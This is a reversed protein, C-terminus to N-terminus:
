KMVIMHDRTIKKKANKELYKAQEEKDMTLPIFGNMNEKTMLYLKDTSKQCELFILANGYATPFWPEGTNEVTANKDNIIIQLYGDRFFCIYDIGKLEPYM